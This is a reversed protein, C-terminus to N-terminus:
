RSNQNQSITRGIAQNEARRLDERNVAIVDFGIRCTAATGDVTIGDGHRGRVAIGLLRVRQTIGPVDMDAVIWTGVRVPESGVMSLGGTALNDVLENMQTKPRQRAALEAVTTDRYSDEGALRRAYDEDVVYYQVDFKVMRDREPRGELRAPISRKGTLEDKAMVQRNDFGHIM